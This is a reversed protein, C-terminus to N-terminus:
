AKAKSDSALLRADARMTMLRAEAVAEHDEVKTAAVLLLEWAEINGPSLTTLAKTLRLAASFDSTAIHHRALALHVQDDAESAHVLLTWLAPVRSPEVRQETLAERVHATIIRFSQRFPPALPDMAIAAQISSLAAEFNGRKDEAVARLWPLHPSDIGASAAQAEVQALLKLADEFDEADVLQEVRGMQRWISDVTTENM